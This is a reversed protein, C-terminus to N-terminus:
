RAEQAAYLGKARDIEIACRLANDRDGRHSSMDRELRLSEITTADGIESLEKRCGACIGKKTAPMGECRKCPRHKILGTITKRMTKEMEPTRSAGGHTDGPNNGEIGRVILWSRRLHSACEGGIM